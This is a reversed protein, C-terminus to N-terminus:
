QIMATTAGSIKGNVENQTYAIINCEKATIDGPLILDVTGGAVLKVTKFDRVVNVHQLTRGENEGHKVSTQANKQVLAIQLVEGKKGSSAGYVVTIINGAASANVSVTQTAPMARGASVADYLKDKQSGIMEMNGNVIAQPTYTSNLRMRAAYDQQRKTYDKSSYMDKWGLYNWYDVHFELVYVNAKHDNNLEELVKEAAPCSSCGESTFLEVVAIGTVNQPKKTDPKKSYCATALILCCLMSTYVIKSNM